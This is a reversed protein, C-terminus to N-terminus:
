TLEASATRAAQTSAFGNMTTGWLRSTSHVIAAALRGEEAQRHLERASGILKVADPGWMLRMMRREVRPQQALWILPLVFKTSAEALRSTGPTM